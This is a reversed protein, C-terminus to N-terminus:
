RCVDDHCMALWSVVKWVGEETAELDQAANWMSVFKQWGRENWMALVSNHLRSMSSVQLLLGRHLSHVDTVITVNSM